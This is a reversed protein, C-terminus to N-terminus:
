NPLHTSRLDCTPLYKYSIIASYKYAVRASHVPTICLFWFGFCFVTAQLVERIILVSSNHSVSRLQWSSYPASNMCRHPSLSASQRGFYSTTRCIESTRRRCQTAPIADWIKHLISVWLRPFFSLVLRLTVENTGSKNTRLGFIVYSAPLLTSCVCMGATSSPVTNALMYIVWVSTGFDSVGAARGKGRENQTLM